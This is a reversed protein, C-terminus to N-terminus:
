PSTPSVHTDNSTITSYDWGEYPALEIKQLLLISEQLNKVIELLATGGELSTTLTSKLSSVAKHHEMVIVSLILLTIIFFVDMLRM